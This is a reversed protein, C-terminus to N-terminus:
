YSELKYYAKCLAAYDPEPTQLRLISQSVFLEWAEMNRVYATDFNYIQVDKTRYYHRELALPVSRSNEVFRKFSSARQAKTEYDIVKMHNSIAIHSLGRLSLEEDRLVGDDYSGFVDVLAHGYFYRLKQNSPNKLFRPLLMMIRFLPDKMSLEINKDTLPKPLKRCLDTFHDRLTTGGSYIEFHLSGNVPQTAHTQIAPQAVYFRQAVNGCRAAVARDFTHMGHRLLSAADALSISAVIMLTIKFFAIRVSEM